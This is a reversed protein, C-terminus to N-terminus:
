DNREHQINKFIYSKIISAWGESIRASLFNNLYELEANVYRPHGFFFNIEEDETNLTVKKSKKILVKYKSHGLDFTKQM